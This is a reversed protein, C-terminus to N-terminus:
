NLYIIIPYIENSIYPLLAYRRRFIMHGKLPQARSIIPMTQLYAHPKSIIRPNNKTMKKKVIQVYDNKPCKLSHIFPVKHTCSRRYKQFKVSMTVMSQLYAHPQSICTSRLNIKTVNKAIQVCTMKRVNECRSLSTGTPPLCM